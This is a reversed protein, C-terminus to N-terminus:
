SPSRQRLEVLQGLSLLHHQLERDRVPVIEVRVQDRVRAHELDHREGAAIRAVLGVPPQRLLLAHHRTEGARQGLTERRLLRVGLEVGRQIPAMSLM